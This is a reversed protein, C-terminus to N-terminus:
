CKDLKKEISGYRGAPLSIENKKIRRLHLADLIVIIM